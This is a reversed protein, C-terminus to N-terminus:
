EELLDVLRKGEETVWEYRVGFGWYKRVGTLNLKDTLFRRLGSFSYLTDSYEIKLCSQNQNMIVASARRKDHGQDIAPQLFVRQGVVLKEEKFLTSIISPARKRQKSQSEETLSNESKVFTQALFEKGKDDKFYNFCVANINVSYPENSLYEIILITSEDIESGVIIMKHDDNFEIDEADKDFRSSYLDGIDNISSDIVGHRALITNMEDYNLDKIWTAYDLVQSIVDRYTRDRKLEIIVLEGHINMALIDIKKGYGTLVQKGIVVLNDSLISIDELLWKELRNEYDLHDRKIPVVKDNRISWVKVERM